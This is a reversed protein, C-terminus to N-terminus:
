KLNEYLKPLFEKSGEDLPIVDIDEVRTAGLGIESARRLQTSEFISGRKVYEPVDYQRLIALGVADIAVVQEHTRIAVVGILTRGRHLIAIEVVVPEATGPLQEQLEVADAVRGHLRDAIRRGDM